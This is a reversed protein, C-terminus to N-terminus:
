FVRLRMPWSVACLGSAIRPSTTDNGLSREGGKLGPAVCMLGIPNGDEDPEPGAVGTIAVAIDAPSRYRAGEAMARAVDRCVATKRKLLDTAVGLMRAKADQSYTVFGGEFCQGAGPVSSLLAALRGATCSEATVLTLRRETLRKLLRAALAELGADETM